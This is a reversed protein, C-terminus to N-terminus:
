SAGLHPLLLNIQKVVQQVDIAVAQQLEPLNDPALLPKHLGQIVCNVRNGPCCLSRMRCLATCVHIM